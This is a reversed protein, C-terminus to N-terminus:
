VSKQLEKKGLMWPFFENIIKIPIYCAFLAAIAVVVAMIIPLLVKEDLVEFTYVKKLPFIIWNTIIRHFALIIITNKALINFFSSLKKILNSLIIFLTIGAFATIYSLVINHGFAIRSIDFGGNAFTLVYDVGFAVLMIIVISIKNQIIFKDTKIIKSVFSGVLFFPYALFASGLSWPLFLQNKKLLFAAIVFIICFIIQVIDNHNGSINNIMSYLLRCCFLGLLFWLPHSAMTSFDTDFVVGVFMGLFSKLLDDELLEPNRFYANIFFYLLNILYFCVYPVILTKFSKTATEYIEENKVMIGSLFFFLPMHFSYILATLDNNTMPIHGLIVLYIGLLKATDIWQIRIQNHTNTM